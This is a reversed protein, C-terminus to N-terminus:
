YKYFASFSSFVFCHGQLEAIFLYFGFPSTGSFRDDAQAWGTAFKKAIEEVREGKQLM